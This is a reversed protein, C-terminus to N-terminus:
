SLRREYGRPKGHNKHYGLKIEAKKRAAIADAKSAFHGLSKKKGNGGGIHAEWLGRAKVFSVGTVGSTNSSRLRQNKLNEKHSVLRLNSIRNNLGNGDIHDISLSDDICGHVMIWILRHAKHPTGKHNILRYGSVVAGAEKGALKANMTKFSRLDPFHHSPRIKWTLVGTDPDYFFMENLHEQTLKQM